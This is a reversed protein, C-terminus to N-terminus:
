AAVQRSQVDRYIDLTGAVMEDVGFRLSRVEALKGLRACEAADDLLADLSQTVADADDPDLFLAAGDWLERFTPIDALVLACGAQAAELVALGFPEYIALSVFVASQQLRTALAEPQLYGLMTLHDFGIAAEGPSSPTGAAVVPHRMRGAARDLLAVRKGKDWLRGATIAVNARSATLMTPPQSRGNWVVRPLHRYEAATLAAFAQSPAILAACAQYGRRLREARVALGPPLETGEVGRWWTAVCSHCGGIVPVPFSAGAALAPSNLHIVDVREAVALAALAVGATDLAADDTELWDLPLGTEIMRLAAATARQTEDPAPGLVALIVEVGLRQLGQALEIAYTWVGGVADTTLLVRLRM